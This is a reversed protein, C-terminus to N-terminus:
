YYFDHNFFKSDFLLVLVFCLFHMKGLPKNEPPPTLKEKKIKKEIVETNEIPVPVIPILNNHNVRHAYKGKRSKLAALRLAELDM